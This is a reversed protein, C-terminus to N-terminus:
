RVVVVKRSAATADNGTLLRVFYVGGPVAHARDDRGDWMLPVVGSYTGDLLRRVLRGSVDYVRVSLAERRDLRLDLRTGTVFPNPAASGLGFLTPLEVQAVDTPDRVIKYVEGPPNDRGLDVIYLEGEGDEGFSSIEGIEQGNGPALEVSRNQLNRVTGAVVEFTYIQGSCHDAFFYSGLLSPIGAGRYVYGGTVACSFGDTTHDYAHIPFGYNGIPGCGSTNFSSNAEYCRWGYNDGGAAAASQWNIEEWTGQGVDAIYLDGNLRDFSWRYPNRLGLAWVEDHTTADGVFPNTPPIAYNQNSDAPFDDASPDIRLMKGLLSLSDQARDNPDGSSGGDGLGWYLYGDAGFDITGGNHNTFDQTVRIIEFGSTADASDRDTSVQYRRVRSIDRGPGPDWTFYVYFFGNAEYGPDFALGLLGQENGSDDVISRIDLFPRALLAGGRLVKIVGAQEVIFLREVDGDPATVFVPRTLGTAVRVTSPSGHAPHALLLAPLVALLSRRRM